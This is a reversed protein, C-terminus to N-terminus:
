LDLLRLFETELFDATPEAEDAAVTRFVQDVSPGYLLYLGSAIRKFRRKNQLREGPGLRIALGLNSKTDVNGSRLPMLFARPLVTTKGPSVELRVPQGRKPNGKVFRALSTPRQRATVAGELSTPAANQSVTLRGTSPNLYNGPFNVQARIERDSRTRARRLAGNIARSAASRINPEADSLDEIQIDLGEIAVVYNDSM